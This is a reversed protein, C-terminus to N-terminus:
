SYRVYPLHATENAKRKVCFGTKLNIKTFIRICDVLMRTYMNCVHLISMHKDIDLNVCWEDIASWASIVRWGFQQLEGWCPVYPETQLADPCEICVEHGKAMPVESVKVRNDCSAHTDATDRVVKFSKNWSTNKPEKQNAIVVEQWKHCHKTSSPGLM